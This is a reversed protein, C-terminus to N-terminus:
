RLPPTDYSLERPLSRRVLAHRTVVRSLPFPLLLMPWQFHAFTHTCGARCGCTDACVHTIGSAHARPARFASFTLMQTPQSIRVSTRAINTPLEGAMLVAEQLGFIPERPRPAMVVGFGLVAIGPLHRAPCGQVSLLLRTRRWV